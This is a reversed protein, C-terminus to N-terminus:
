SSTSHQSGSFCLFGPFGFRRYATVDSFPTVIWLVVVQIGPDYQWLRWLNRFIETESVEKRSVATEWTRRRSVYVRFGFEVTVM